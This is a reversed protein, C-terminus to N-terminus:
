RHPGPRAPRGTAPASSPAPAIGCIRWGGTSDTMTLVMTQDIDLSGGHFSQDMTAQATDGHVAPPRLLRASVTAGALLRQYGGASAAGQDLEQQLAPCLLGRLKGIDKANAAAVYSGALAGPGSDPTTAPHQSAATPNFWGPWGFGGVLVILLAAGTVALILRARQSM